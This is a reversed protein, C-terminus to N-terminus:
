GIRLGAPLYPLVEFADGFLPSLYPHALDHGNAYLRNVPM